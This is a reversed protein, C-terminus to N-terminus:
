AAKNLHRVYYDVSVGPWVLHAEPHKKMVQALIELPNNAVMLATFLYEVDFITFGRSVAVAEVIEVSTHALYAISEIQESTMLTDNNM